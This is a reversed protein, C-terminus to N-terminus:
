EDRIKQLWNSKKPGDEEGPKKAQETAPKKTSKPKKRPKISLKPEIKKQDELDITARLRELAKKAEEEDRVAKTM